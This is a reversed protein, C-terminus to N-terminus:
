SLPAPDSKTPAACTPSQIRQERRQEKQSPMEARYVGQDGVVWSLPRREKGISEQLLM